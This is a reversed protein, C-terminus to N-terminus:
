LLASITRMPSVGPTHDCLNCSNKANVFSLAASRADGSSRAASFSQPKSSYGSGAPFFAAGNTFTINPTSRSNDSSPCIGRKFTHRFRTSISSNGDVPRSMSANDRTPQAFTVGLATSRASSTSAWIRGKSGHFSAISLKGVQSLTGRSSVTNVSKNPAIGQSAAVPAARKSNAPTHM